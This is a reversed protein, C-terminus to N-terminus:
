ETEASYAFNWVDRKRETALAITALGMHIQDFSEGQQSSLPIRKRDRVRYFGQEALKEGYTDKAYVTFRVTGNSPKKFVVRSDPFHSRILTRVAINVLTNKMFNFM